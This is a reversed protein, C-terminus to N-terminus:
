KVFLGIKTEIGNYSDLVQLKKHNFTCINKFASRKGFSDSDQIIKRINQFHHIAFRTVFLSVNYLHSELSWSSDSYGAVLNACLECIKLLYDRLNAGDFIKCLNDHTHVFFGLLSNAVETDFKEILEEIGIIHLFELQQIIHDSEPLRSLENHIRENKEMWSFLDLICSSYKKDSDKRKIPVVGGLPASNEYLKYIKSTEDMNIPWFLSTKYKIDGDFKFTLPMASKFIVADITAHMKSTDPTVNKEQRNRKPMALIYFTFQFLLLKNM